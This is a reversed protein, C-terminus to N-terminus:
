LVGVDDLVQAPLLLGGLPPEVDEGLEDRPPRHLAEDLAVPGEGEGDHAPAGACVAHPALSQSYLAVCLLTEARQAKHGRQRSQREHQEHQQTHTQEQEQGRPQRVQM